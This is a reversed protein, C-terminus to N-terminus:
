YWYVRCKRASRGGCKSPPKFQQFSITQTMRNAGVVIDGYGFKLINGDIM